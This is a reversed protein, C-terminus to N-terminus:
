YIIIIPFALRSLLQIAFQGVSTSGGIVLAANRTGRVSTMDLDPSLGAGIPSPALLGVAATSFGLPITCASLYSLTSPIRAVIDEPYCMYEQFGGYRQPKGESPCIVREGVRWKNADVGEGLGVVEGAVDNGLVLPYDEYFIGYAQVKWDLPNLAVAHVKILLEGPGPSHRPITSIAFEPSFKTPLLLATQSM